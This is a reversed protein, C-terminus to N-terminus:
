EATLKVIEQPDGAAVHGQSGEKFLLRELEDFGRRRPSSFAGRMENLVVGREELVNNEM